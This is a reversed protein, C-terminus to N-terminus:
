RKDNAIGTGHCDACPETDTCCECSLRVVTYGKGECSECATAFVPCDDVHWFPPEKSQGCNCKGVQSEMLPSRRLARDM